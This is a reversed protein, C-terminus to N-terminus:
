QNFSQIQMLDLKSQDDSLNSRELVMSIPDIDFSFPHNNSLLANYDNKSNNFSSTNNTFGSEINKSINVESKNKSSNTISETKRKRKIEEQELKKNVQFKCIIKKDDVLHVSM